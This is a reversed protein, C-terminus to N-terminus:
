RRQTVTANRYDIGFLKNFQNRIIDNTDGKSYKDYVGHSADMMLDNFVVMNEYKNDFCKIVNNSFCAIDKM